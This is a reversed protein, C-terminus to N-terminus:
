LLIFQVSAHKGQNGGSFGSNEQFHGPINFKSIKRYPGQIGTWHPMHENVHVSVSLQLYQDVHACASSLAVCHGKTVM